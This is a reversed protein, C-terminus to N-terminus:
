SPVGMISRFFPWQALWEGAGGFVGFFMAAPDWNYLYLGGFIISILVFGLMWSKTKGM